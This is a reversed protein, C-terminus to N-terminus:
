AGVQALPAGCACPEVEVLQALRNQTFFLRPPPEIGVQLQEGAGIDFVDRDFDGGNEALDVQHIEVACNFLYFAAQALQIPLRHAVLKHWGLARGYGFEDVEVHFLVAVEVQGHGGELLDEVFGFKHLIPRADDQLGIQGVGVGDLALQGCPGLRPHRPAPRSDFDADDLPRIQGHFLHFRRPVIPRLGGVGGFCVYIGVVLPHEDVTALGFVRGHNVEADGAVVEEVKGVAQEDAGFVPHLLVGLELHQLPHGVVLGAGHLLRGPPKEEVGGDDFLFIEVAGDAVQHAPQILVGGGFVEQVVQEAELDAGGTPLPLLLKEELRYPPPILCRLAGVPQLIPRALLEGKVWGGGEVVHGVGIKREGGVLM